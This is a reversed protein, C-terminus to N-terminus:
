PLFDEMKFFPEPYPNYVEKEINRGSMNIPILGDRKADNIMSLGNRRHYEARTLDEATPSMLDTIVKAISLERIIDKIIKNELPLPDMNLRMGVYAEVAEMTEILAPQAISGSGRLHERIDQPDIYPM